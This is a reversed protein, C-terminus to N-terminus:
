RKFIESLEERSSLYEKVEAVRYGGPASPHSLSIVLLDNNLKVNCYNHINNKKYICHSIISKKKGITIIKDKEWEEGKEYNMSPLKNFVLKSFCVITKIKNDNVFKFLNDNYKIRNDKNSLIQKAKGDQKGCLKEIYNGFFVKQYFENKESTVYDFSMAIRDFFVQSNNIFHNVVGSTEEISSKEDVYHSEGLILVKNKEPLNNGEWVGKYM